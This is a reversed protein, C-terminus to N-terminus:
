RKDIKAGLSQLRGELNEYGREIMEVNDITSQGGAILAALTLTAGARIDSVRLGEGHLHTPGLIKVAHFSDGRIDKLNFNYFTEPDSVEPNFLEIKAGMKQLDPVFGFRSEYVREHVTSEGEAQTMLTVWLAQWDTKFGPYPATEVNIGKLPQKYFFRIGDASIEVGGGTERVKEIFAGLHEERAEQVFVDGKTALASCAFTVAENQDPMARYAARHLKEVGNIVIKRSEIRKVDAGMKNLFNILDDVEPEQAANNLVTQGKALAATLIMTETGTHTSKEFTYGSGVLGNPSKACIVGEDTSIEVGLKKLGAFHRDLSRAGINDGGPFPVRAQGFRHLLIPIMMSSARSEKGLEIPVSFGSLDKGSVTASHNETNISTKGGLQEIIEKVLFVNRIQCVNEVTSDGDSLAAALILKFVSNKAGYIRVTGKLPNGGTVLYKAM